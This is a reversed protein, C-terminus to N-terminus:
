FSEFPPTSTSLATSRQANQAPPWGMGPRLLREAHELPSVAQFQAQQQGQQAPTSARTTSANIYWQGWTGNKTNTISITASDAALLAKLELGHDLLKGDRWLQVDSLGEALVWYYSHTNGGPWIPQPGPVSHKSFLQAVHCALPCGCPDRLGDDQSIWKSSLQPV